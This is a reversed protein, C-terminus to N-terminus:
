HFTDFLLVSPLALINASKCCIQLRDFVQEFGIHLRVLNLVEERLQFWFNTLTNCAKLSSRLGQIIHNFSCSLNFLVELCFLLLVISSCHRLLTRLCLFWHCQCRHTATLAILTTSPASTSAGM